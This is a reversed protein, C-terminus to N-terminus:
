YKGKIDKNIKLLNKSIKLINKNKNNINRKIDKNRNITKFVIKELYRQDEQTLYPPYRAIVEFASEFWIYGLIAAYETRDIVTGNAGQYIFLWADDLM